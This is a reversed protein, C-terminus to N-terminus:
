RAGKCEMIKTANWVIGAVNGHAVMIKQIKWRPGYKESNESNKKGLVRVNGHAVMIKTGDWVNVGVNGHAVM